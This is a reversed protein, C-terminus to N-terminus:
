SGGGTVPILIVQGIQLRNPNANPNAEMIAEITVGYERALRSYNDGTRISHERYGEPTTSGSSDQRAPSGEATDAAQPVQRAVQVKEILEALAAANERMGVRTANIEGGIANLASNIEGTLNQVRTRTAGEERQITELAAELSRIRQSLDEFRGAEAEMEARIGDVASGAEGRGSLAFFLAVGGLVVGAFGFVLPLLAPAGSREGDLGDNVRDSPLSDFDAM